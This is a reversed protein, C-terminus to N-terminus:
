STVPKRRGYLWVAVFIAGAATLTWGVIEAAKELSGSAGLLYGAGIYLVVWIVDGLGSALLYRSTPYRESGALLTLPLGLPTILWRSLFVTRFKRADFTAKAKRFGKHREIRRLWGGIGRRALTYLAFHGTALGLWAAGSLVFLDGRGTRALYGAAVASLAAPSPVGMGALALVGALAFPGFRALWDLVLEVVNRRLRRIPTM